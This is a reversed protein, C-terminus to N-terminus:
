YHPFSSNEEARESLLQTNELFCLGSGMHRKSNTTICQTGQLKGFLLSFTPQGDDTKTNISPQSQPESKHASSFALDTNFGVIHLVTSLNSLM